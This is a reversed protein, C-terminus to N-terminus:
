LLLNLGGMPGRTAENLELNIGPVFAYQAGQHHSIFKVTHPKYPSVCCGTSNDLTQGPQNLSHEGLQVEKEPWLLWPFGHAISVTILRPRRKGWFSLPPLIKNLNCSLLRSWTVRSTYVEASIHRTTKTAKRRNKSDSPM